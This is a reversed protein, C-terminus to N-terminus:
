GTLAGHWLLSVLLTLDSDKRLLFYANNLFDLSKYERWELIYHARAKRPRVKVMFKVFSVSQPPYFIVYNFVEKSYSNM